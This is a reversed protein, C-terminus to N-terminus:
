SCLLRLTAAHRSSSLRRKSSSRVEAPTHNHYKRRMHHNSQSQLRCESANFPRTSSLNLVSSRADAPVGRMRDSKLSKGKRSSRTSQQEQHGCRVTSRIARRCSAVFLCHCLPLHLPVRLTTELDLPHNCPPLLPHTSDSQSRPPPTTIANKLDHTMPLCPLLLAPLHTYNHNLKTPIASRYSQWRIAMQNGDSQWRIAM